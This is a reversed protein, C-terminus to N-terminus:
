FNEIAKRLQEESVDIYRVLSNLSRHGTLRQIVKIDYGLRKLHTVFGRRASYLSYGQNELGAKSLARRFAKDTAQRSLHDKDKYLSPFLYGESPPQYNGLILKLARHVPIERSKNDKRNSAPYIITDRVIRQSPEVYVHVVDMKLIAQPREGTYWALALFIKYIDTAFCNSIQQYTKPDLPTSQGFRSLKM